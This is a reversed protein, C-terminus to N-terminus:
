CTKLNEQNKRLRLQHPLEYTGHKNSIFGSQKVQPLLFTQYPPTWLPHGCMQPSLPDPLLSCIRFPSPPTTLWIHVDAQFFIIAVM